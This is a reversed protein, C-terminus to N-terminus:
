PEVLRDLIAHCMALHTIEVTGYKHSPVYFNIHGATRLPNEHDFGSFTIVGMGLEKAAWAANLINESRGSSSIAFLLDGDSGFRKIPESFVSAYGLDNSLCTLQAPDNFALAKFKGAKMFDAAMHSAIGASGGNGVFFVQQDGERVARVLRVAEDFTSGSIVTRELGGILDRVDVQPVPSKPKRAFM